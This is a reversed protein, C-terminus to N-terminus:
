AIFRQKGSISMRATSLSWPRALLAYGKMLSAPTGMVGSDGTPQGSIMLNDGSQAQSIRALGFDLLKPVGASTMMINGPKIDRHIVGHEHAHALADAVPVFWNFFLQLDCEQRYSPDSLARGEVYEMTIFHQEATEEISYITAINPHNLAAAAKAEIHFRALWKADHIFVAPLFKLAVQRDLRTDGALYVEGMGGVGIRYLIHYHGLQKGALLPEAQAAIVEAALEAAPTEIFSGAQDHGALLKAVEGRLVDDGACAQALFAAREDAARELAQQFIAKIQQWRETTVANSM